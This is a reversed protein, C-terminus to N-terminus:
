TTVSLNGLLVASREANSANSVNNRLKRSMPSKTDGAQLYLLKASLEAIADDLLGLRPTWSLHGLDLGQVVMTRSPVVTTRGRLNTHAANVKETKEINEARKRVVIEALILLIALIVTSTADKEIETVTVARRSTVRQDIRQSFTLLPKIFIRRLM